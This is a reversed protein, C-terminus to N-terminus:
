ADKPPEEVVIRNGKVEIVRVSAGRDIYEGATIVDLRGGAILMTGAPRLDTLCEGEDGVSVQGEHQDAHYGAEHQQSTDLVIHGMWRAQPLYKLVLVFLTM